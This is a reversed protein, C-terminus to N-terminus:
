NLHLECVAKFGTETGKLFRDGKLIINCKQCNNIKQVESYSYNSPDKWNSYDDAIEVEYNKQIEEPCEKHKTGRGKQWFIQDGAEIDGMCELCASHFKATIPIWDPM